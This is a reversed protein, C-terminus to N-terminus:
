DRRRETTSQICIKRILGVVCSKDLKGRNEGEDDGSPDESLTM